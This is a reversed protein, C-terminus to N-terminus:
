GLQSRLRREVMLRREHAEVAVPALRKQAAEALALYFEKSPAAPPLLGQESTALIGTAWQAGRAALSPSMASGALGLIFAGAAAPVRWGMELSYRRREETHSALASRYEMRIQEPTTSPLEDRYDRSFLEVPLVSVGFAPFREVCRYAAVLAHDPQDCLLFYYYNGLHGLASVHAAPLSSHTGLLSDGDSHEALRNFSVRAFGLEDKSLSTDSVTVSAELHSFAANVEAVVSDELHRGISDVARDIVDVKARLAATDLAKKAESVVKLAVSISVSEM